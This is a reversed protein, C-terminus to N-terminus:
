KAKFWHPRCPCFPPLPWFWNIWFPLSFISNSEPFNKYPNLCVFIHGPLKVELQTGFGACLRVPITLGVANGYLLSFPCENFFVLVTAIGSPPLNPRFLLFPSPFTRYHSLPSASRAAEFFCIRIILRSTATMETMANIRVSSM